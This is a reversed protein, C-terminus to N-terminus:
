IGKVPKSKILWKIRSSHKSSTSMLAPLIANRSEIGLKSFIHELHRKVTHLSIGTILAIDTNTKGMAVWEAIERERDSLRPRTSSADKIQFLLRHQHSSPNPLCHLLISRGAAPSAIPLPSRPQQSTVPRLQTTFWHHWATPLQSSFPLKLQHFLSPTQHCHHIIKGHDNCILWPNSGGIISDSYIPHSPRDLLLQQYRQRLHPAFLNLLAREDSKYRTKRAVHLLGATTSQPGFYNISLDHHLGLPDCFTQCIVSSEFRKPPILDQLGVPCQAHLYSGNLFCPEDFFKPVYAASNVFIHDCPESLVSDMRKTITNYVGLGALEFAILPRLLEFIKSPFTHLDLPEHLQLVAHNLASIQKYSLSAM